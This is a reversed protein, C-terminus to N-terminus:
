DLGLSEITAQEDDPIDVKHAEVYKEMVQNNELEVHDKFRQLMDYKLRDNMFDFRETDISIVPVYYTNSGKKKRESTMTFHRELLVEHKRSVAQIIGDMISYSSSQAYYAFPEDTMECVVGDVNTGTGSAVGYLIRACKISKQDEIEADSLAKKEKGTIKGCAQGGKEDSKDAKWTAFQLSQNSYNGADNDWVRYQFRSMIPKVSLETFYLLESHESSYVVYTGVPVDKEDDNLPDRNIRIRQLNSSGITQGLDEMFEEDSIQTEFLAPVAGETTTTLQQDETM